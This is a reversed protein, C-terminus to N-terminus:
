RTPLQFRRVKGVSTRPLADILHWDRPRSVPALHQEAWTALAALNPPDEPTAPVVYAVPVYDRIPDPQAVVAVELVGPAEALVAEVETLSVNEGSVKIVDDIRGVFQLTGDPLRRGLDGTSFWQQGDLTLMCAATKDPDNLYGAFLDYGPTGRVTLIGPSDDAVPQRTNPDLLRVERGPFATGISDHRPEDGLDATVVVVSETLGYLQRPKVGVLDAFEAYHAPGLSQAFWLHELELTPAGAPRRALIMRIPAAFLSAHTAALEAAQGFWGSASFTDTLAVSAGVAIAPAFCYFHANGHFLPLTVFWRHRPALDIASSMALACGLYNAQTLEAGKPESTTGSTFMVALRANPNIPPSAPAAHSSALAGGPRVDAANEAVAIAHFKASDVAATYVDARSEGYIGVRAGTRDIQSTLERTASFPDVSVIWAGMRAAALWVAIFAPSNKLALHLPEGARVGAAALAGATDRVVDNFQSYTWEDIEGGGGRFILFPDTGHEAVTQEWLAHFTNLPSAM